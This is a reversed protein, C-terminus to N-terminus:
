FTNHLSVFKSPEATLYGEFVNKTLYQFARTKQLNTPVYMKTQKKPHFRCTTTNWFEKAYLPAKTKDTLLHWM